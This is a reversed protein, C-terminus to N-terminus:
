EVKTKKKNKNQKVLSEPERRNASARQIGADYSTHRLQYVILHTVISIIAPAGVIIILRAERLGRMIFLVPGRAVKVIEARRRPWRQLACDSKESEELENKEVRARKRM